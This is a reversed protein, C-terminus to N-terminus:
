EHGCGLFVAAPTGGYQDPIRYPFRGYTFVARARHGAPDPRAQIGGGAAALSRGLVDHARGVHSRWGTDSLLGVAEAAKAVAADPRCAALSAWAGAAAAVGRHPALDAIRAVKELLGAPVAAAHEDQADAAAEALDTLVFVSVALADMDLLRRAVEGLTDACEAAHGAHWTLVAESYHVYPLFWSWDRGGIAQRARGILHKAESV